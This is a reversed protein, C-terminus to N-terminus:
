LNSLPNIDLSYLAGKFSLLLFIHLRMKLHAFPKFLRKKSLLSVSPWSCTFVQKGHSTMLSIGISTILYWTVRVLIAAATTTTRHHHYLSSSTNTLFFPFPVRTRKQHSRLIPRGSQFVTQCNRLSHFVGHDGILSTRKYIKVIYPTSLMHSSPFKEPGTPSYIYMYVNHKLWFFSTNTSHSSCRLCQAQPIHSPGLLFKLLSSFSM